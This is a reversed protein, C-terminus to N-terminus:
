TTWFLVQYELLWVLVAARQATAVPRQPRPLWWLPTVYVGPEGCSLRAQGYFPLWAVSRENGVSSPWSAVLLLEWILPHHQFPHMMPTTICCHRMQVKCKQHQQQVCMFLPRFSYQNWDSGMLILLGKDHMTWDACIWGLIFLNM